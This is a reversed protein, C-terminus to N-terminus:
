ALLLLPQDWTPPSESIAGLLGLGIGSVGTLFSPDDVWAGRHSSQYGAIGHDSRRMALARRIWTRAGEILVESEMAQGLRNLIHALGLAGHCLAADEVGSREPPCRTSSTILAQAEVLRHEDHLGRAATHLAVAVGPDGYCWALRSRQTPDVMSYAYRCYPHQVQDYTLLWAVARELLPRAVEVCLGRAVAAGLLAIAGPTGHALGFNDGGDPFRPDEELYIAPALWSCGAARPQALSALSAIAGELIRSRPENMPGELAYAGFGVLGSVLDFDGRWPRALAALLLQDVEETANADVEFGQGRLHELLWAIGTAGAYLGLGAVRGEALQEMALSAYHEALDRHETSGSHRALHCYFLSFGVAGGGLTANLQEEPLEALAAAIALVVDLVEDREAGALIPRWTSM